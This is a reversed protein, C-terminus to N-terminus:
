EHCRARPLSDDDGSRHACLPAPDRFQNLFGVDLVSCWSLSPEVFDSANEDPGCQPITPNSNPSPRSRPVSTESNNMGEILRVTAATGTPSGSTTVTAGDRATNRM